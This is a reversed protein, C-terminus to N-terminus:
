LICGDGDLKMFGKFKEDGWFSLGDGYAIVGQEKSGWGGAVM